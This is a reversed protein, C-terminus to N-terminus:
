KQTKLDSPIQRALNQVEKERKKEGKDKRERKSREKKSLHHGIQVQGAM